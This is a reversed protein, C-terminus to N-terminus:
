GSWSCNTLELNLLLSLRPFAWPLDKRESDVESPLAQMLLGWTRSCRCVGVQVSVHWCAYWVYVYVCGSLFFRLPDAEPMKCWPLIGTFWLHYHAIFSSSFLFGGYSSQPLCIIELKLVLLVTMLAGFDMIFLNFSQHIRGCSVETRM